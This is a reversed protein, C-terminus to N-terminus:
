EEEEPFNVLTCVIRSAGMLSELQPQDGALVASRVGPEIGARKLAEELRRGTAFRSQSDGGMQELFGILDSM